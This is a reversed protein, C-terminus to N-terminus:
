TLQLPRPRDEQRLIIRSRTPEELHGSNKMHQHQCYQQGETKVRKTPHRGASNDPAVRWRWVYIFVLGCLQFDLKNKYSCFYVM